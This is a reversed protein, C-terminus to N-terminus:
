DNTLDDDMWSKAAYALVVDKQGNLEKIERKRPIVVFPKLRKGNGCATLIVTIRVKEHGTSKVPVCKVGRRDVTTSGVPEILVPTEDM